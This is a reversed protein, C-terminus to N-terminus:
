FWGPGLPLPVKLLTSFLYFTGLALGLAAVLVV